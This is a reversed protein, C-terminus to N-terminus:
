SSIIDVILLVYSTNLLSPASTHEKVNYIAKYYRLYLNKTYNFPSWHTKKVHCSQVIKKQQSKQEIQSLDLGIAQTL